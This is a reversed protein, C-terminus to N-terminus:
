ASQLEGAAAIADWEEASIDAGVASAAEGITSPRSAGVVPIIAPSIRLQWALVLQHISIDRSAAIRSATPLDSALARSRVAGGFPAYSLYTMKRQELFRILPLDVTRSPSLENQVSCITAASLARSVLSLDCNSIGIMRVLGEVQFEALAGVSEEIPVAPDPHHLQYLDVQDVGLARLSMQLHARLTAPRADIPFDSQGARSHGGKTAILLRDREPNGAIADRVLREAHGLEDVTTYAHATDILTVGNDIAERITRISRADDREVGLSMSATGLAIAGVRLAGLNRQEIASRM